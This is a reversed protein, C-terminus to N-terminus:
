FDRKGAHERRPCRGHGSYVPAPKAKQSASERFPDRFPERLTVPANGARDRRAGPVTGPVSGAADRFPGPLARFRFTFEEQELLFIVTALKSRWQKEAAFMEAEGEVTGQFAGQQM